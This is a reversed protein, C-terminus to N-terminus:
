LFPDERVFVDNEYVTAAYPEGDVRVVDRTCVMDCGPAATCSRKQFEIPLKIGNEETYYYWKDRHNARRGFLPIRDKGRSLYGMQSYVIESSPTRVPPVYPNRLVDNPAQVLQVNSIKEQEREQEETTRTHFFLGVSMGIAFTFALAFLLVPWPKTKSKMKSHNM